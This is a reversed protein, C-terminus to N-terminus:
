TDAPVVQVTCLWLVRAEDHAPRVGMPTANDGTSKSCAGPPLAEYDRSVIGKWRNIIYTYTYRHTHTFAFTNM